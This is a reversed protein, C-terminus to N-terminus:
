KHLNELSSFTRHTLYTPALTLGGPERECEVAFGAARIDSIRSTYKLSIQALERNSAKGAKLRNYIALSQGSLRQRDAPQVHPDRPPIFLEHQQTTM